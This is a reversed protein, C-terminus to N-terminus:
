RARRARSVPAGRNGDDRVIGADRVPESIAAPATTTGHAAIVEHGVANSGTMSRFARAPEGSYLPPKRLCRANPRNCATTGSRKLVFSGARRFTGPPVSRQKYGRQGVAVNIQM